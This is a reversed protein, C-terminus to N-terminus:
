SNPLKITIPNGDLDMLYIQEDNEVLILGDAVSRINGTVSLITNGNFDLLKCDSDTSEEPPTFVIGESYILAYYIESSFFTPLPRTCALLLTSNKIANRM